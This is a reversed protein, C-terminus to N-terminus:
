RGRAPRVVVELRALEEGALESVRALIRPALARVQTAWPPQEVAVVLVDGDVRLPRVHRALPGGVVEDWRAFVASLTGASPPGSVQREESGAGGLDRGAPARPGPAGLAAVADDLSAALPRPGSDAGARRRRRPPTV